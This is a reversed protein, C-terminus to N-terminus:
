DTWPTVGKLRSLAGPSSSPVARWEYAVCVRMASARRQMLTEVSGDRRRRSVEELRIGHREAYPWAVERLYELTDPSESDDGVNAFVLADYKLVGEAVLVLVATSQVGGGYSFIRM